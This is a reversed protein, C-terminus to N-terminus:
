ELVGEGSLYLVAEHVFGPIESSDGHRKKLEAAVAEETTEERFLDFIEAASENLRVVGQFKQADEGVPVAVVRDDLNMCEFQYKLKM